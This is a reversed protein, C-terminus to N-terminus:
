NCSPLAPLNRTICAHEAQVRLQPPHTMIPPQTRTTVPASCVCCVQTSPLRLSGGGGNGSAARLQKRAQRQLIAELSRLEELLPSHLFAGLTRRQGSWVEQLRTGIHMVSACAVPLRIHRQVVISACAVPLQASICASCQRMCAAITRRQM